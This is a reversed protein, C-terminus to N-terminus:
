CGIAVGSDKFLMLRVGECTLGLPVVKAVGAGELEASVAAQARGLLCVGLRDVVDVVGVLVRRVVDPASKVGDEVTNHGVGLLYDARHRHHPM